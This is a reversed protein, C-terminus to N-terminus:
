IESRESWTVSFNDGIVQMKSIIESEEVVTLQSESKPIWEPKGNIIREEGPWWPEGKAWQQKMYEESVDNHNAFDRLMSHIKGRQSDTRKRQFRTVVIQMQSTWDWADFIPILQRLISSQRNGIIKQM